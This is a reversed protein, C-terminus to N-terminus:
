LGSVCRIVLLDYARYPDNMEGTKHPYCGEAGHIRHPHRGAAWAWCQHRDSAPPPKNQLHAPRMGAVVREQDEEYHASDCDRFGFHDFVEHQGQLWSGLYLARPSIFSLGPASRSPRTGANGDGDRKNEGM